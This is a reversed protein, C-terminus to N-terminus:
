CDRRRGRECANDAGLQVCGIEVKETTYSNM